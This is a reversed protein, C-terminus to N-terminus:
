RLRRLGDEFAEFTFTSQVFTAALIFLVAFVNIKRGPYCFASLTRRRGSVDERPGWFVQLIDEGHDGFDLDSRVQGSHPLHQPFAESTSWRGRRRRRRGARQQM